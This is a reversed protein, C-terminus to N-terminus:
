EVTVTIIITSVYTGATVDSSGLWSLTFAAIEQGAVHVGPNLTRKYEKSSATYTYVEGSEVTSTSLANNILVPVNSDFGAVPTGEIGIFNSAAVTTNYTISDAENGENTTLVQYKGTTTDETLKYSGDNVFATDDSGLTAEINGDYYLSLSYPIAEYSAKVFAELNDASVTSLTLLSLLLSLIIKRM